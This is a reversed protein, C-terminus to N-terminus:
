FKNHVYIRKSIKELQLLRLFDTKHKDRDKM